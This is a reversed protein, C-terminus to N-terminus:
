TQCLEPFLDWPYGAPPKASFSLMEGTLPHPFSLFSSFLAIPCKMGRAGYKGDGVLPMGRSSFQVRIQHSRGTHLGIEVLSLKGGASDKVSKVHYELEAQRVGRRMRKVVYSKNHASDKFLLDRLIGDKPDPVGSLVALYRKQSNDSVFSCSLAAATKGDCACVMVGGVATDLRHVCLPPEIGLEASLQKPLGESESSLGVPKICVIIQSDRYLLQIDMEKGGLQPLHRYPACYRM